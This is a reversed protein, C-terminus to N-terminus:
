QEWTSYGPAILYSAIVGGHVLDDVFVELKAEITSMISIQPMLLPLHEPGFVIRYHDAALTELRCQKEQEISTEDHWILTVIFPSAAGDRLTVIGGTHVDDHRMEEAAQDAQEQIKTM